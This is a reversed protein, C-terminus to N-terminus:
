RKEKKTLRKIVDFNDEPEFAIGARQSISVIRDCWLIPTYYKLHDKERKGCNKCFYEIEKM